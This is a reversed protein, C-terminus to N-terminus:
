FRTSTTSLSALSTSRGRRKFLPEAEEKVVKTVAKVFALPNKDDPTKWFLKFFSVGAAVLASVALIWRAGLMADSSMYGLMGDNAYDSPFHLDRTGTSSDSPNIDTMDFSLMNAGFRVADFFTYGLAFVWHCWVRHEFWFRISKAWFCGLLPGVIVVTFWAFVRGYDNFIQLGFCLTLVNEAFIQLAPVDIMVARGPTTHGYLNHELRVGTDFSSAVSDVEVGVMTKQESKPLEHPYTADSGIKKGKKFENDVTWFYWWTCVLSCVLATAEVYNYPSLASVYRLQHIFTLFYISSTFLHFVGFGFSAWRRFVISNEKESYMKAVGFAGTSAACVISLTVMFLYKMRLEDNATGDWQKANNVFFALSAFAIATQFGWIGACLIDDLWVKDFLLMTKTMWLTNTALAYLGLAFTWFLPEQYHPM